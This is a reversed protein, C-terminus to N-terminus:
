ESLRNKEVCKLDEIVNNLIVNKNSTIVGLNNLSASIQDNTFQLFSVNVDMNGKAHPKELNKEAKLREARELVLQDSDSARRKSKRSSSILAEPIASIKGVLKEQEVLVTEEDLGDFDEDSATLGESEPILSLQSSTFSPGGRETLNSDTAMSVDSVGPGSKNGMDKENEGDDNRKGDGDGFNDMDLPVPDGAGIDSEVKFSLEYLHDGIAVDVVDPILSPDLVLVQLRAIEYRRTFLMDVAKTIGLISGVAWIILYERLGSPLGKCQVWVKPIVYKVENGVGREIIEMQAEGVKTHVKGWEVMRNLEAASPFITHFTNDGNDHVVWRWKGPILRELESVVAKVTMQGNSIKVLAARPDHRIRQGAPLPIHFFGLGDGGYGCLQATPKVASRFVPCRTAIHDVSECIECYFKSSCEQLTHGKTLCRYCYPKGLGKTDAKSKGKESDTACVLLGQQVPEAGVAPTVSAIVDGTKAAAVLTGGVAVSGSVSGSTNAALGTSGSASTRGFSPIVGVSNVASTGVIKGVHGSPTLGAPLVLSASVSTAAAGQGGGGLPLGAAPVGGPYLGGPPGFAGAPPAMGGAPVGSSGGTAAFQGGFSPM